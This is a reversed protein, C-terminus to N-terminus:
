TLNNGSENEDTTLSVKIIDHHSVRDDEDPLTMYDGYANTLVEDYARPIPFRYGEFDCDISDDVVQRRVMFKELVGKSPNALDAVYKTKKHNFRTMIKLIRREMTLRSIPILQILYYKLKAKSRKFGPRLSQYRNRLRYKLFSDIARLLFLQYKGKLSDYDINDLAFIDIYIGRHMALDKVSREVFLTKNKRIKAFKNLYALDTQYSQFFYDDKLEHDVLSLFKNYDARLMCVDIDDDWPIFGKHRVAGILTGAYLQYKLDYKQCIRDFELLIEVEIKQISKIDIGLVLDQDQPVTIM